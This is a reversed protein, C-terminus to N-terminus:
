GITFWGLFGKCSGEAHRSAPLGTPDVDIMLRQKEFDHRMTRSYQQFLCQGGQRLQAIQEPGLANLTEAITSQEAFRERHWPSALTLDPRLRTNIQYVSKNGALISVLMDQLKETPTHRITKMAWDMDDWVPQLFGTRTLCYGLVALPVYQTHTPLPELVIQVKM